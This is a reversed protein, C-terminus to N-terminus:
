RPVGLRDLIAHMTARSVIEVHGLTQLRLLHADESVVYDAQIEAAAALVMDDDPDEPVLGSVEIVGPTVLFLRGVLNVFALIEADNRCHWRRTRPRALVDRLEDFIPQSVCLGIDAAVLRDILRRSDSAPVIAPALTSTDFVVTM